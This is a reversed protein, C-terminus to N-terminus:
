VNSKEEKPHNIVTAAETEDPNKKFGIIESGEPLDICLKISHKPSMNQISLRGPAHLALSISAGGWLNKILRGM